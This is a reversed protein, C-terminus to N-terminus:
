VKKIEMVPMCDFESVEESKVCLRRLLKVEEKTYDAEWVTEDDCGIIKIQYRM